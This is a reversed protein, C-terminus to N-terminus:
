LEADLESLQADLEALEAALRDIERQRAAARAAAGLYSAPAAPEARGVLSGVRWSGDGALWDRLQGLPVRGAWAAPGGSATADRWRPPARRRQPAAGASAASGGADGRSAWEAPRTRSWCSWCAGAWRRRAPAQILSRSRM